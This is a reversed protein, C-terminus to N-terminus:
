TGRKFLKDRWSRRQKKNNASPPPLSPILRLDPLRLDYVYDGAQHEVLMDGQLFTEVTRYGTPIFFVVDFGVLSLFAMLITDEKSIATETTNIYVVKPNQKTFDMQQIMRIIGKDLDLLQPVIAYETGDVSTGKIIKRDILLQIKDLIHEQIEERLVGFKYFRNVKINDRCLVGNKLFGSAFSKLPNDKHPNIYPTREILLTDDTILQKITSWYLPLNQDKVGSIKAFIVPMTVRDGEASFNPRYKLEQEWLIAIEEYMTRLTITSAHGHQRDRYIGSDAYMLTDLEREANYAATAVSMSEFPFKDIAMSESYNLEYLMRDSLVSSQSRDPKLLLVDVPLRSLFRLFLATTYDTCAGFFIFCATDPYKWNVFLKSSYRRLWCMMSTGYSSLIGLSVGDKKSEEIMIDFLAKKSVARLPNGPPFCINAALTNLFSELSSCNVNKILKMEDAASQPINKEVVIVRRGANKLATHFNLIDTQYTLKDEVGNMVCFCNYFLKPDTGRRAPVTMIDSLVSGKIWANTCPSYNTPEGYLRSVAQEQAADNRVSKLSYGKPFETTGSIELNDSFRSEPDIGLYGGDGQYQLLVVDCGASSLISLMLLEYKTINGEYIIKPVDNGGLCSIVREFKYYMWCMFKIYANKLMNDNKGSQRLMELSGYMAEAASSRQVSNLRPLWKGLSQEIFVRDIRFDAGMFSSYYELNEKTPNPIREEIVVGNKRAQIYYKRIFSDILDSYSNVRYFYVCRDPRGSLGAFFDDLCHIKKHEFM